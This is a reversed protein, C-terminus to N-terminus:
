GLALAILAVVAVGLGAIAVIAASWAHRPDVGHDPADSTVEIVRPSPSPLPVNPYLNRIMQGHSYGDTGIM